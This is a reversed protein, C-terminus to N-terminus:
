VATEGGKGSEARRFLQIRGGGDKYVRRMGLKEFGQSGGGEKSRVILLNGTVM